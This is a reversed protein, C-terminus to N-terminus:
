YVDLDRGFVVRGGYVEGIEKLLEEETAGWLLQHTLVVVKPRVKRALEGLEVLSQCGMWFCGFFLVVSMRHNM